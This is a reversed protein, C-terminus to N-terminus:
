EGIGIAQVPRSRLARRTPLALALLALLASTGLIAALPVGPTYPRLSGTLARSLPLLATAAIALGVGLGIVIILGAEWRAMSRVQHPTAGVLRLLALERGRRLAIMVLTNVIAISTFAFIMAVFLPGLWRNMERDADSATALSARSAVRLGPYQANLARLRSAVAAPNDAQILITGLLPDTQHRAALEPALLADGFALERTYIAVVTAHAPTGDGLMVAVRSGVRAHAADARHRGLAIANGHLAALSGATV